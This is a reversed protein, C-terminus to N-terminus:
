AAGGQVVNTGWGSRCRRDHGLASDNPDALYKPPAKSRGVSDLLYVDCSYIRGHDSPSKGVWEGPRVVVFPEGIAWEYRCGKM